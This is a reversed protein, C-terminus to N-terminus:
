RASRALRDILQKPEFAFPAAKGASIKTEVCKGDFISLNGPKRTFLM